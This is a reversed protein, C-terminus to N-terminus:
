APREGLARELAADDFAVGTARVLAFFEVNGAPGVLPSPVLAVPV